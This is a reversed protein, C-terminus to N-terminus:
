ASAMRLTYLSKVPLLSRKLLRTNLISNLQLTIKLLKEKSIQVEPNVEIFTVQM